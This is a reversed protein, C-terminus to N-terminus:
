CNALLPTTPEEIAQKQTFLSMLWDEISKAIGVFYGPKNIPKSPSESDKVEKIPYTKEKSVLGIDNIKTFDIKTLCNHIINFLKKGNNKLTNNSDKENLYAEINELKTLVHDEQELKKLLAISSSSANPSCVKTYNFIIDNIVANIIEDPLDKLIGLRSKTAEIDNNNLRKQTFVNIAYLLPSLLSGVIAGGLGPIAGFMVAAIAFDDVRGPTCTIICTGM